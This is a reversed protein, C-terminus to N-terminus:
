GDPNSLLVAPTDFEAKRGGSLVLVRDSDLITHLRHAITLVTRDKFVDRILRQIVADTESDVSSTAEDCLLITSPKLLARAICVLQRQGHSLRDGATGVSEDLKHPMKAVADRLTVQHTHTHTHTTFRTNILTLL